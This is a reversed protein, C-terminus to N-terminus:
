DDRRGAVLAAKAVMAPGIPVRSKLMQPRRLTM